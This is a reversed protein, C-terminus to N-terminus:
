NPWRMRMLSVSSWMVLDLQIYFSFLPWPERVICLRNRYSVMWPGPRRTDWLFALAVEVQLMTHCCVPRGTARAHDLGM